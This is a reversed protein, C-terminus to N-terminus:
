DSLFCLMLERVFKECQKNFAFTGFRAVYVADCLGDLGIVVIVGVLVHIITKSTM